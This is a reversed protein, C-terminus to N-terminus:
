GIDDLHDRCLLLQHFLCCLHKNGFWTVYTDHAAHWSWSGDMEQHRGTCAVVHVAMSSTLHLFPHLKEKGKSVHALYIGAQRSFVEPLYMFVPSCLRVQEVDHQRRRAADARRQKEARAVLSHAASDASESDSSMPAPFRAESLPPAASGHSLTDLPFHSQFSKNSVVDQWTLLHVWAAFGSRVDM